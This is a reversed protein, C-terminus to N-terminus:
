SGDVYREYNYIFTKGNKILGELKKYFYHHHIFKIDKNVMM